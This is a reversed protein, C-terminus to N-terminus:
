AGEFCPCRCSPWTGVAKERAPQRDREVKEGGRGGRRKIRYVERGGGRGEEERGRRMRYVEGTGENLVDREGGGRGEEGGV